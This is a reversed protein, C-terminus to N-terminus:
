EALSTESIALMTEAFAIRRIGLVSRLKEAPVVLPGPGPATGPAPQPYATSAATRFAINGEVKQMIQHIHGNLVTVSGFRKLHSLAEAADDTGWGWDPYVLWLPMHAFVVVPTSASRGELDQKLWAIQEGGLSGLGGAKLAIVNVLGVFHVGGQDFSYWPTTRGRGFQAFFGKGDDSITDHEGPVYHVDLRATKMIGDAAAFESPKSLHSVDGTHLMFAPRERMAGVRELAARLTAEPEPNAKKDFGIHSDSIQVFSFPQVGAANPPAADLASAVPVGGSVTWLIGASGWAMCKLIERRSAQADTKSNTAM